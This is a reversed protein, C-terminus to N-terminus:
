RLKEMVTKPVDGSALQEWEKTYSGKAMVKLFTGEKLVTSATFTVKKEKGEANFGNLKYRYRHNEPVPQQNIQVYVYEEAVLPNYRDIEERLGFYAGIIVVLLLAVIIGAKKM